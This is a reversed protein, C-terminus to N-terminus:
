DGIREYCRVEGNHVIKMYQGTDDTYVAVYGTTEGERTVWTSYSVAERTEPLEEPM